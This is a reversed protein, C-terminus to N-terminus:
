PPHNPPTGPLHHFKLFCLGRVQARTWAAVLPSPKESPFLGNFCRYRLRYHTQYHLARTSPSPFGEKSWRLPSFSQFTFGLSTSLQFVSEFFHLRLGNFPYGFGILPVLFFCPLAKKLNFDPRWLQYIDFPWRAEVHGSERFPFFNTPSCYATTVAFYM